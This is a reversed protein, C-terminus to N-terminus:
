SAPPSGAAAEPPKPPVKYYRISRFEKLFDWMSDPRQKREKSMMRRLLDAFEHSINDSHVPAWPVSAQLHKALLEDPTSGTYPPRGTVLEYLMCGFSYLDSRPDLSEGRIQEPSMYSRTGRVKSRGGFLKAIGKRIRQAITFDILKVQNEPNILFNDPKVDCHVVGESHIYFLGNAAQEVITPLHYKLQSSEQRLCQKLNVPAFLELVLFHVGQDSHHEFVHIVNPHKFKHAIEFEHKLSAIEQKDQALNAPLIKLAVRPGGSDRAAEWVQCANGIGIIRQIRYSGLRDPIKSM